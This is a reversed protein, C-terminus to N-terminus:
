RIVGEARLQKLEDQGVGAESLIEATHEGYDPPKAPVAGPTGSLKFPLGIQRMTGGNGIPVDILLGRAAVQPDSMAQELTNVPGVCVDEKETLDLWETRTRTRFLATLENELYIKDKGEGHQYVELDQRGALECFKKFFKPEIAGICVFEGDATEYAGYVPSGGTLSTEGRRPSPGGAEFTAFELPLMCFAADALSVDVHQGRGTRKCEVLAALMGVLANLAGGIDGAQVGPPVPKGGRPGNMSLVGTYGVYNIDHGARDAYPGTQGYGTLSCYIIKQNIASATEYGVGLKGLVGPRFGEVVIDYHKVLDLFIERGRPAKLNLTASKKNRNLLLFGSGVKDIYPPIWRMYDGQVPDEIKVVEAGLDAMIMTCFPGPLLRSLDLVRIGELPGAM